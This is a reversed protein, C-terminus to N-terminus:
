EHSRRSGTPVEADPIPATSEQQGPTQSGPLREVPVSAVVEFGGAPREGAHLTGGLVEVRERMGIIGNGSPGTTGRAVFGDDDLGTGPVVLGQGDDTVRILLVAPTRLVDVVVSARPGAHKLVNTLSEQVVRYAALDLDRPLHDVEGRVALTVPVGSDRIRQVLDEVDAVGHAPAFEAADSDRLVGVLRRTDTLAERATAALTELTQAARELVQPDAGTGRALAVRAAYAGGDAQVVVVSLSHAVIDHMERAIAAREGQAVLASRQAQDRALAENQERLRALVARRRRVADGLVWAVGVSMWMFLVIPVIQFLVSGAPAYLGDALVWDLGGLLGGVLAAILVARSQWREEAYAAVAYVIALVAVNSLMPTGMVILQLLCAAAIVLAALFPQTRRWALPLVQATTLLFGLTGSSGAFVPFILWALVALVLDVQFPSRQMWARVRRVFEM